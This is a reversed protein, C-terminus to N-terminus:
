GGGQEPASPASLRRTWGELGMQWLPPIAAGGIPLAHLILGGDRDVDVQLLADHGADGLGVAVFMAGTEPDEDVFLGFGDALGVDGALWIVPKSRTVARLLPAVDTTFANPGELGETSNLHTLIPAYREQVAWVVHHGAIVVARVRPDERADRLTRALFALQDGSVNWPDLNTDLLVFRVGGALFTSWRPGFRALYPAPDPSLEHNGPVNVVPMGLSRLIALTRGSEPESFRRFLDGLSIFLEAGTGAAQRTWRQFTAAPRASGPALGGYLHGAALFRIGGERRLPLPNGSLVAPAPGPESGPPTGACAVLLLMFAPLGHRADRFRFPM